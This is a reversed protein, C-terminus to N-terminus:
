YLFMHSNLNFTILILYRQINREGTCECQVREPAEHPQQGGYPVMCTCRMEMAPFATNPLVARPDVNCFGGRRPTPLTLGLPRKLFTSFRAFTLSPPFRLFKDQPSLCLSPQLSFPGNADGEAMPYSINM